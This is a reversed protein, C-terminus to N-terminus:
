FEFDETGYGAGGLETIFIEELNMPLIDFIMLSYREELYKRFLDIDGTLTCM